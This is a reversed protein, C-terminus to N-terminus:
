CCPPEMKEARSLKPVISYKLAFMTYLGLHNLLKYAFVMVEERV